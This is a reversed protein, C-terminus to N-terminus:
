GVVIIEFHEWDEIVGQVNVVNHPEDLRLYRGPFHASEIAAEANNDSIRRIHFKEWALATYQAAVSGGGAAIRVKPKVGNGDLSLFVNPFQSAEFSVTGDSNYHLNFIEWGQAHNATHVTNKYPEERYKHIGTGNLQVFARDFHKSRITVKPYHTHSSM